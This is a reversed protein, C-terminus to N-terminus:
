LVVSFLSFARLSIGTFFRFCKLKKASDILKVYLFDIFYISNHKFLDLPQVSHRYM